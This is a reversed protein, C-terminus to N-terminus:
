MFNIMDFVELTYALQFLRKASLKSEKFVEGLTREGDFLIFAELHDPEWEIRGALALHEENKRVIHGILVGYRTQLMEAPVNRCIAQYTLNFIEVEPRKIKNLFTEDPIFAYHGATLDLIAALRVEVEMILYRSLDGASLLKMEVLTKGLSGGSQKVKIEAEALQEPTIKQDRMLLHAFSEPEVASQVFIPIGEKLYVTRVIEGSTVQLRGTRGSVAMGGFVIEVQVAALDGQEPPAILPEAEVKVPSEVPAPGGVSDEPTWKDPRELGLFACIRRALDVLNVPKLLYDDAGYKRKGEQQLTYSKYLASMLIVPVPRPGNKIKECLQFGNMKPLLVDSVVLVPEKENFIQFAEAGDKATLVAFGYAELFESIIERVDANDEVILIKPHTM